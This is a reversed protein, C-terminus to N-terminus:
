ASVSIATAPPLRRMSAALALMWINVCRTLRSISAIRPPAWTDAWSAAAASDDTLRDACSPSWLLLLWEDLEALEYELEWTNWADLTLLLLVVRLRDCTRLLEDCLENM